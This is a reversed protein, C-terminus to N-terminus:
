QRTNDQVELGAPPTFQFLKPNLKQDLVLGTLAIQNGDGNFNVVLIQRLLSTKPDVWIYALVMQYEPQHPVLRLKILGNEQGQEQVQFDKKLNAKGSLFKFVTKSSLLQETKHKILVKEAPVYEWTAQPGIVIHEEPNQAEWRVLSPQQFWIRGTRRTVKGSAAHTIEQSFNAHFAKVSEYRKQVRDATDGAGPAGLATQAALLVLLSLVAIATRM